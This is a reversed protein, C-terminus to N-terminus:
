GELAPRGDSSTWAAERAAWPRTVPPSAWSPKPAGDAGVWGGDRTGAACRPNNCTPTSATACTEWSATDGIELRCASTAAPTLRRFQDVPDLPDAAKRRRSGPLHCASTAAPTLRRFQDVPDGLPDAAKRRRSGPLQFRYGGAYAPPISGRQTWHTRRRVAAAVMNCMWHHQPAIGLVSRSRRRVAARYTPASPRGLIRAPGDRLLPEVTATPKLGRHASLGFQYRTPSRRSLPSLSTNLRREAISTCQGRRFRPNLVVAVM